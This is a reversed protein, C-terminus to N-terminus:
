YLVVTIVSGLCFMTSDSKLLVLSRYGAPVTSVASFHASAIQVTPFYFDSVLKYLLEEKLEMVFIVLSM